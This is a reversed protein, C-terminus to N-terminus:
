SFRLQTVDLLSNTSRPHNRKREDSKEDEEHDNDNQEADANTNSPGPRQWRFRRLGRLWVVTCQLSTQSNSFKEIYVPRSQDKEFM